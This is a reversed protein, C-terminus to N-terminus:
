NTRSTELERKMSQLGQDVSLPKLGLETEAKLTIFGSLLPRPATQHLDRSAVQKVLSRDLGFQEAIKVAFKFRDIRESGCVHFLGEKMREAARIMGLALDSVYTPNSIQDDACKVYQRENLTRIIWLPFTHKIGIGSGYVVTTRIIAHAVGSKRLANEGALKTKGYYNVPNPKDDESYPGQRGDFVHDTSVHIMRANVRRAAEILNEVGVVNVNWAQERNTECWDVDTAGAANFIVDPQFSSVLSKIDGKRTIDLQTYDFLRHDFVFSRHHSTNLVEYETQTSVMLSLRQGLLGNSGCILIRKM